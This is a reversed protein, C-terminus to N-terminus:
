NADIKAMLESTNQLASADGIDLLMADFQRRLVKKYFLARFLGTLSQAQKQRESVVTFADNIIALFINMLILIVLIAFSAFLIPALVRNAAWLEDYDFLGLVLQFLSILSSSVSRYGHVELGFAMYFAM